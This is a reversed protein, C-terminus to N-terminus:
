AARASKQKICAMDSEKRIRRKLASDTSKISSVTATADVEEDEEDPYLYAETAQQDRNGIVQAWMQCSATTKRYADSIAQDDIEENENWQRAQEELAATVAATRAKKKSISGLTSHGELGRTCYKQGNKTGGSEMRQLVKFCRQTIKDMDAEDYWSAAIESPTYDYISLIEVVNVTENITVRRKHTTAMASQPQNM